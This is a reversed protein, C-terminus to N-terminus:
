PSSVRIFPVKFSLVLIFWCETFYNCHIICCSDRHFVASVLYFFPYNLEGLHCGVSNLLINSLNLPIFKAFKVYRYGDAMPWKLNFWSCTWAASDYSDLLSALYLISSVACAIADKYCIEDEALAIATYNYIQWIFQFEVNVVNNPTNM